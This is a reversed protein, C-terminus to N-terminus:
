KRNSLSASPKYFSVIDHLLGSIVFSGDELIFLRSYIEKMQEDNWFGSDLSYPSHVIALIDSIGPLIFIVSRLRNEYHMLNKKVTGRKMLKSSNRHRSRLMRSDNNRVAKPSCKSSMKM